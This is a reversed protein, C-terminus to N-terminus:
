QWQDGMTGVIKGLARVSAAHTDDHRKVDRGACDLLRAIDEISWLKDTTRRCMVLKNFNGRETASVMISL